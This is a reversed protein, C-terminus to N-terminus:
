RRRRGRLLDIWNKSRKNRKVQNKRNQRQQTTKKRKNINQQERWKAASRIVPGRYKGGAGRTSRPYKSKNVEHWHSKHKVLRGGTKKRVPPRKPSTVGRYRRKKSNTRGGKKKNDADRYDASDIYKKFWDVPQLVREKPASPIEDNEKGPIWQLVKYYLVRDNEDKDKYESWDILIAPLDKHGWGVDADINIVKSLPPKEYASYEKDIGGFVNMADEMDKGILQVTSPPNTSTSQGRRMAIIGPDVKGSSQASSQLGTSSAIPPSQSVSPTDSTSKPTSSKKKTIGVADTVGRVAKGVGKAVGSIAGGVARVAGGIARGIRSFLGGRRRRRRRRRGM